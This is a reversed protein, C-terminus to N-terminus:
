KDKTQHYLHFTKQHGQHCEQISRDPSEKPKSWKNVFAESGVKAVCCLIFTTFKIFYKVELVKKFFDFLSRKLGHGKLIGNLFQNRAM